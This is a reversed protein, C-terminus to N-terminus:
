RIRLAGGDIDHLEFFIAEARPVLMALM